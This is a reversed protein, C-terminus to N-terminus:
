PTFKEFYIPQVTPLAMISGGGRGKLTLQNLM